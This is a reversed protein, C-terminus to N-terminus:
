QQDPCESAQGKWCGAQPCDGASQVWQKCIGCFLRGDPGHREWESLGRWEEPPVPRGTWTRPQGTASAGHRFADDQRSPFAAAPPVIRVPEPREVNKAKVAQGTSNTSNMSFPTADGVTAASANKPSSPWARAVCAVHAVGNGTQTDRTAYTAHTARPGLELRTKEDLATARIRGLAARADFLM